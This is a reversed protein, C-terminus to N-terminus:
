PISVKQSDRYNLFMKFLIGKDGMDKNFGKAYKNGPANEMVDIYKKYDEASILLEPVNLNPIGFLSMLKYKMNSFTRRLGNWEWRDDIRWDKLKPDHKEFRDFDIREIDEVVVEVDGYNSWDYILLEAHKSIQKLYEQKYYHDLTELYEKTLVKSNIEHPLNRKMIRDMLINVPVDLYIVLHPRLLEGITNNKIEYYLNRAPKSIYGFKVMAELFVFDSYVSRDMVVGQGTQLLHALADIYQEYRLKYMQFQFEPVNENSPNEYFTKVDCSKCSAPLLPDLTRMDFGYDNIYRMDMDAEPVFHMDLQKALEEAFTTKGAAINGDVVVVKTNEDFRSLTDDFYEHYWRYKKEKYPWPAPRKYDPGRIQKGSIWAVQFQLAPFTLGLHGGYNILPIPNRTAFMVTPGVKAAALRVASWTM